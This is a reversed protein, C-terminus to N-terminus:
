WRECYVELFGDIGSKKFAKWDELLNVVRRAKWQMHLAGVTHDVTAESFGTILARLIKWEAILSDIDRAIEELCNDVCTASRFRSIRDMEHHKQLLYQRAHLREVLAQLNSKSLSQSSSAYPPFDDWVALPDSSSPTDRSRVEQVFFHSNKPLPLCGQEKLGAPIRQWTAKLKSKHTTRREYARRNQASRIARTSLDM